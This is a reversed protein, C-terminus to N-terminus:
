QPIILTTGIEIENPNSINNAQAIRGFAYIDGYARGAITSLWDGQAVVYTGGTIKPGWVTVEDTVVPTTDTVVQEAVIENISSTGELKPIELVQGKELIDPNSLNNATAIETYKWGDSYYREAILFLTDDEKVTYKGPLSEVTVDETTNTTTQSPGLDSKNRNFFNFLLFVIVLIILGGLIMSVKSQNTQVENELKQMYSSVEQSHVQTTKSKKSSVKKVM